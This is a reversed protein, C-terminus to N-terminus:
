SWTMTSADWTMASADWIMADAPVGSGGSTTRFLFLLRRFLTSRM